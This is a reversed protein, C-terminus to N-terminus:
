LGNVTAWSEQYEKIQRDSLLGVIFISTNFMKRQTSALLIVITNRNEQADTTTFSTSQRIVNTETSQKM